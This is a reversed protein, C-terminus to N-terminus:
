SNKKMKLRNRNKDIFEIFFVIFIAIFLSSVGAVAVILKKNPKFPKYPVIPKDIVQVYLNNKLSNLKSQEYMKELVGYKARLFNLRIVLNSFSTGGNQFLSYFSLLNKSARSVPPMTIDYKKQEASIKSSVSNIKNRTLILQKKLFIVNMKSLTFAKKNLINDLETVYTKAIKQALKPNKNQVSITITGLRKNSSVTVLKKLIASSKILKNKSNKNTIFVPVLNLKKIVMDRITRSHLVALIKDTGSNQPLSIPLFNAAMSLLSSGTSSSSTIPIVTANSKYMPPLIFSIIVAIVVASAFFIGIFKRRKWIVSWLEILDIEDESSNELVPATYNKVDNKNETEM